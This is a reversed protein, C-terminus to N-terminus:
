RKLNTAVQLMADATAISKSNAEYARQGVIMNVMEEVIQVNSMELFGQAITGANNEGPVSEIPEGSGDTQVYLNRGQAKLGAPNVFTYIPIDTAALEDGGRGVCTLHGDETIVINQTEQPVIFEPQLPHGNDTVIRGENDLKFAGNRTYTEEGNRDIRFFGEGEIVLDLQSGTNQFDGQTFIKHVAVPRVGMGIQLGVPLRNGEQNPTGAIKMNQYMLDEFEARNKKFGTTNVNALNNSTVDLNMQQAIMGSASTWLARIM